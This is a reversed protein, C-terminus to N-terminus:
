TAFSSSRAMGRVEHQLIEGELHHPMQPWSHPDSPYWAFRRHVGQIHHYKQQISIQALIGTWAATLKIIALKGSPLRRSLRSSIDGAFAIFTAELACVVCYARLYAATCSSDSHSTCSSAAFPLTCSHSSVICLSRSSISIASPLRKLSSLRM